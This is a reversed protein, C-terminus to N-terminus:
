AKFFRKWNRENTEQQKGELSGQRMHLQRHSPFSM